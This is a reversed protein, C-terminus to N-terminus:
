LMFAPVLEADVWAGVGDDFGADVSGVVGADVCAGLIADVGIESGVGVGARRSWCRREVGVCRGVGGAGPRRGRGNEVAGRGPGGGGRQAAGRGGAPVGGRVQRAVAEGDEELLWRAVGGM